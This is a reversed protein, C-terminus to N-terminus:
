CFHFAFGRNKLKVKLNTKPTLNKGGSKWFQTKILRLPKLSIILFFIFFNAFCLTQSTVNKTVSINKWVESLSENREYWDNLRCVTQYKQQLKLNYRNKKAFFINQLNLQVFLKQYLKVNPRVCSPFTHSSMTCMPWQRLQFWVVFFPNIFPIKNAFM